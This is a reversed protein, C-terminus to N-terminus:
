GVTICVTIFVVVDPHKLLKVMRHVTAVSHRFLWCFPVDIVCVRPCRKELAAAAAKAIEVPTLKKNGGQPNLDTDM